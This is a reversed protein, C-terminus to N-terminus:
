RYSKAFVSHITAGEDFNEAEASKLDDIHWNYDKFALAHIVFGLTSAAAAITLDRWLLRRSTPRKAYQLVTARWSHVQLDTPNQQRLPELIDDLERDREEM